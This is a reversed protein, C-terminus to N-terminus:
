FFICVWENIQFIVNDYSLTRINRFYVIRYAYFPSIYYVMCCCPVFVCRFVTMCLLCLRTTKGSWQDRFNVKVVLLLIHLHTRAVCVYVDVLSLSSKWIFKWVIRYFLILIQIVPFSLCFPLLITIFHQQLSEARCHNNTHKWETTQM